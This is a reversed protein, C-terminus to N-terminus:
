GLASVWRPSMLRTRQWTRTDWINIVVTYARESKFPSNNSWVGRANFNSAVVLLGQVFKLDAAANVELEKLLLAGVAGPCSSDGVVCVAAAAASAAAAEEATGAAAKRERGGGSNSSSNPKTSPPAPHTSYVKVISSPV